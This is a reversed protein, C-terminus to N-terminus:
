LKSHQYMGYFSILTALISFVLAVTWAITHQEMQVTKRVLPTNTNKLSSWSSLPPLLPCELWPLGANGENWRGPLGEDDKALKPNRVLCHQSAVFWLWCLCSLEGGMQQLMRPNSKFMQQLNQATPVADKKMNGGKSLKKLQEAVKQFPKFTDMVEQVDRMSRGSGRAVRAVRSPQTNFIKTGSDLEEPTMSDMICLFKKIRAVSEEEKGKGLMNGIGPIMNMVKGLPGLKLLNNFQEAMDRFTFPEKGETIKKYLAAQKTEDLIKTEQFIELLGTVDGMGSDHVLILSLIRVLVVWARVSCVVSLVRSMLDRSIM